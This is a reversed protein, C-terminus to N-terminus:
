VGLEGLIVPVVVHAYGEAVPHLGDPVWSRFQAENETLLKTWAPMHDIVLIGRERGVARYNEQYAVLEPRHGAHGPPRDLVPSMVQLIIACDPNQALVRDVMNELNERAEAVTIGFRECADNVAFEIFLSEPRHVLVRADLNALGWGSHMGSEAGNFTTVLGPFRTTLVETVQPVWGGAATLSTGYFGIRQPRDSTLRSILAHPNMQRVSCDAAKARM